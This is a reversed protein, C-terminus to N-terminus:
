VRYKFTNKIDRKTKIKMLSSVEANILLTKEYKNIM